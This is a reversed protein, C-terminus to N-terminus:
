RRALAPFKNSLANTDKTKRKGGNSASGGEKRSGSNSDDGDKAQAKYSPNKKLWAEAEKRLLAQDYNGNEDPELSLTPVFIRMLVDKTIFLDGIGDHVALEMRVSQLDAQLSAITEDRTEITQQAETLEDAIRAQDDMQSREREKEAAKMADLEAQAENARVRHKAAEDSLRKKEPDRVDGTGDTGSGDGEGNSDDAGSSGDDNDGGDGGEGEGNDGDEDFVATQPFLFPLPLKPQGSTLKPYM